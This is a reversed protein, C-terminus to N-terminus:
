DSTFANKDNAADYGDLCGGRPWSKAGELYADIESELWRVTRFGPEQVPLPFLGKSMRKYIASRRLGVRREVVARPLLSDSM